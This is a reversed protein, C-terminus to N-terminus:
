PAPVLLSRTWVGRATNAAVVTWIGLLLAFLAVSFWQVAVSDTAMGLAGAGVACAGLPFTFSWWSMSFRLGRGAARFTLLCAFGLVLAGIGAVGTGYAVGFARLGAAADSSVATGSVRGLLNAAAISQGIVGLPIWMTPIAQVGPLGAQALHGIVVAMTVVAATLAMAFLAYCGLLMTLRAQGEPLHPILAAGTAASVMPPVVPMLWVPSPTGGSLMRPPVIIAATVGAVTGLAWLVAAAVVASPGFIETGVGVAGAGVTLVAMPLAGYFPAMAPNRAYGLAQERHRVWHAAFAVSLLLLVATALVWFGRAISDRGPLDVPLSAAGVAIIGTGMVVAFWNPTLHALAPSRRATPAPAPERAITLM